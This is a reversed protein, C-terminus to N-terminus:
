DEERGDETEKGKYPKPLEMWATVDGEKFAHDTSGEYANWMGNWYHLDTVYSSNVTVLYQGEEKPKRDTIWEM